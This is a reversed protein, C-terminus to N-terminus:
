RVYRRPEANFFLLRSGVGGVGFRVAIGRKCVSTESFMSGCTM